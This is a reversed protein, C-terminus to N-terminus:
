QETQSSLMSRPLSGKELDDLDAPPSVFAKSKFHGWLFFDLPTLDPSRRPWEMPLHLATVRNDFLETLRETVTRRRHPPAGDQVWWVRQFLGNRQHHYHPMQDIVPVIKANIM